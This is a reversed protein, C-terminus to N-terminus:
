WAGYGHTASRGRGGNRVEDPAYTGDSTRARISDEVHRAFEEAAELHLRLLRANEQLLAQLQLLEERLLDQMAELDACRESMRMIDLQLLDKQRAHESLRSTEGNRLDANERELVAALRRCLGALAQEMGQGQVHEQLRDMAQALM